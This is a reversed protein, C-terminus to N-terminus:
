LESWENENADVDNVSVSGGNERPNSLTTDRDTTDAIVFTRTPRGGKETTPHHEWHGLGSKVLQEMAAEAADAKSYQRSSRMLQRATMAGGKSRILELLQRHERQDDSESLMAYVRRTERKFWQVLKIGARMSTADVIMDCDLEANDVAWRVFHIVLALRAAYEELKSWAASLEGSLEAQELAHANYYEIWLSKANGDLKVVTPSLNNEADVEPQLEYLRDFLRTLEEEANPDIDAENWQKSKRPPCCLLLRAALGSERHEVGLARNLIGPQIGGTVSVSARPVYITRPHGTKRDVVISEGNFMSLWNSADTGGKGGSYRDFSGLWGALEDRALLLGRFNAQLLPALAEVTTDNVVFRTAEPPAPKEPPPENTKKNKKWASLAKEYHALEADYQEILAEQIDLARRQRDRVPRMVLQFAPTKSTGSEGVIATWLIAPATWGRKLELRRTNGIAAALATLLPLALYSADCGIAKAGDRVFGCIPDPLADIPFPVYQEVSPEPQESQIAEVEDAMAEVLQFPDTVEGDSRAGLWEVIDGGSPLDPLEVVRVVPRPTLGELIAVVEDAYAEGPKDNDPLIVCEKGALPTWDTKDASKSGHASTTAILGISRAADAAKEGEVIYVRGADAFDPRRYLPRPESMGGVKWDDGVRAIPRIDKKGDKDWRVVVGVPEGDADRYTWSASRKGLQRELSEVAANATSYMKTSYQTSPVKSKAQRQRTKDADASMLDAVRLGVADCVAEATCGAHCRILAREDDGESISLSPRSDDHAPCRSEWGRANKKPDCRHDTLRDLILEIATM